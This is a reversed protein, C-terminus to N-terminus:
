RLPQLVCRPNTWNRGTNIFRCGDSHILGRLLLDPSRAVLEHQWDELV